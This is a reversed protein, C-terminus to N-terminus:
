PSLTIACFYIVCQEFTSGMIKQSLTDSLLDWNTLVFILVRRLIRNDGGFGLNM